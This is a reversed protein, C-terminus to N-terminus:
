SIKLSRTLNSQDIPIAFEIRDRKKCESRGTAAFFDKVIQVNQEINM